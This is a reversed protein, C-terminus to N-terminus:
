QLIDKRTKELISSWERNRNMTEKDREAAEDCVKKFGGSEMWQRHKDARKAMESRFMEKLYIDYRLEVMVEEDVERFHILGFGWLIDILFQKM